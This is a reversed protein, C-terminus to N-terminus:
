PTTLLLPALSNWEGFGVTFRRVGVRLVLVPLRLPKEKNKDDTVQFHLGPWPEPLKGPGWGNEPGLPQQSCSCGACAQADRGGRQPGQTSIVSM